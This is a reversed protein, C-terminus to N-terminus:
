RTDPKRVRGGLLESATKTKVLSCPSTRHIEFSWQIGGSRCMRQELLLLLVAHLPLNGEQRARPIQGIMVILSTVRTLKNM